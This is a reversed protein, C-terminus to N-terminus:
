FILGVLGGSTLGYIGFGILIFAATGPLGKLNLPICICPFGLLGMIAGTAAMVVIDACVSYNQGITRLIQGIKEQSVCRSKGWITTYWWQSTDTSSIPLDIKRIQM